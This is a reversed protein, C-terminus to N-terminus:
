KDYETFHIMRPYIGVRQSVISGNEKYERLFGRQRSWDLCDCLYVDGDPSIGMGYMMGLGPLKRYLEVEYTDVNMTFIAGFASNGESRINMYFYLKGKTRDTDMRTYWATGTICGDVYAEDGEKVYPVDVTKEVKETEPNICNLIVKDNGTTLVWLKNNKDLILKATQMISGELGDILRMSSGKINDTDFVGIGKGLAACFLKNGITLMKEIQMVGTETIDIYEVVTYDKINIRILQKNQDSVIAETESIPQIFRPKVDDNFIISAVSNFTQPEVVEVKKSGNLAVFYNGKIYTISQAVDGLPRGNVDQFLDLKTSGDDYIVSLAASGTTFAGENVVIMNIHNGPLFDQNNDDDDSCAMFAAVFLLLFLIKKMM